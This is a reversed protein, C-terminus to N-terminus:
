VPLLEASQTTDSVVETTDGVMETTVAPTDVPTDVPTEVPTETTEAQPQAPVETPAPTPAFYDVGAYEVFEKAFEIYETNGRENTFRIGDGYEDTKLVLKSLIDINGGTTSIIQNVLDKLTAM